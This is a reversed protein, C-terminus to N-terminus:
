FYNKFVRILEQMSDIAFTFFGSMGVFGLKFYVNPVTIAVSIQFILCYAQNGEGDLSCAKKGNSNLKTIELWLLGVYLAKKTFNLLIGTKQLEL